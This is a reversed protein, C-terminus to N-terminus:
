TFFSRLQARLTQFFLFFAIFYMNKFIPLLFTSLIIKDGRGMCSRGSHLGTSSTQAAVVSTEKIATLYRSNIRPLSTRRLARIQSRLAQYINFKQGFFKCCNASESFSVRFFSWNEAFKYLKIIKWAKPFILLFVSYSNNM